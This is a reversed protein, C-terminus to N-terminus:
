IHEHVVHYNHSVSDTFKENCCYCTWFKWDKNIEALSLAESLVEIALRDKSERLHAKLDSISIRLLEKKRDLTLSNWYLQVWDRRETSSPNKRAKGSKRREGIRQGSGATLDLAKDGDNHTQVTESKQQLLWESRM